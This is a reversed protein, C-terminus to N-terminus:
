EEEADEIIQCRISKEGIQLIAFLIFFCKEEIYLLALLLLISKQGTYL